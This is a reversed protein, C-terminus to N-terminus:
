VLEGDDDVGSVATVRMLLQSSSIFPASDVRGCWTLMKTESSIGIEINMNFKYVYFFTVCM